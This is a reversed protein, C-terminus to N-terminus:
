VSKDAHLAGVPVLGDGLLSVVRAVFPNRFAPTWLPPDGM